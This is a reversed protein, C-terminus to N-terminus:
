VTTPPSVLISALTEFNSTRIDLMWIRAEVRAEVAVLTLKLKSFRADQRLGKVM